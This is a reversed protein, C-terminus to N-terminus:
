SQFLHFALRCCLAARFLFFMEAGWFSRHGATEMIMVHRRPVAIRAKDRANGNGTMRRFLARQPLPQPDPPPGLRKVACRSFANEYDERALLSRLRGYATGTAVFSAVPMSLLSLPTEKGGSSRNLTLVGWLLKRKFATREM